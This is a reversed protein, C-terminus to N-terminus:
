FVALYIPVLRVTGYKPPDAFPDGALARLVDATVSPAGGATHKEPKLGLSTITVDVKTSLTEKKREQEKLYEKFADSNEVMEEMVQVVAKTMQAITITPSERKKAETIDKTAQIDEKLRQILEAKNGSRPLGRAVLSDRLDVVTMSSIDDEVAIDEQESLAKKAESVVHDRLRQQLEVKKGSIKLKKERLIDKLDKVKM